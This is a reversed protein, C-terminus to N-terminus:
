KCVGKNFIFVSVSSCGGGGGSRERHLYHSTLLHLLSVFLLRKPQKFSIFHRFSHRHWTTVKNAMDNAVKKALSHHPLSDLIM